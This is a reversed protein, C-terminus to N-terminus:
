DYLLTETGEKPQFHTSGCEPCHPPAEFTFRGGCSCFGALEEVKRRYDQESLPPGPFIERIIRDHEASALCYHGNLTKLYRFHLDGLEEFRLTLESGCDECHLLHSFFGGGFNAVFETGCAECVAAFKCGLLSEM